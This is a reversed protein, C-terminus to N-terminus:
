RCPKEQFCPRLMPAPEHAEFPPARPPWEGTELRAELRQISALTEAADFACHGAKKLYQSNMMAPPAQEAYVRQLSPSTIGDGFAQVALLPVRPQAFPTYYRRM